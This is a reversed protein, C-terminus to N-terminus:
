IGSANSPSAPASSPPWPCDPGFEQQFQEIAWTLPKAARHAAALLYTQYARQDALTPRDGFTSRLYWRRDPVRGTQRFFARDAVIPGLGRDYAQRRFHAFLPKLLVEDNITLWDQDTIVTSWDAVTEPLAEPRATGCEPCRWATNPVWVQCARCLDFTLERDRDPQV